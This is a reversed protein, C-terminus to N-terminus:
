RRTTVTFCHGGRSFLPIDDVIDSAFSRGNGVL